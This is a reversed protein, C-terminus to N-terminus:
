DIKDEEIIEVEPVTEDSKDTISSNINNDTPSIDDILNSSDDTKSSSKGRKLNRSKAYVIEKNGDKLDSIEKTLLKIENELALKNATQIEINYQKKYLFKDVQNTLKNIKNNITLIQRDIHELNKNFLKENEISKETKDTALKKNRELLMKDKEEELANLDMNLQNIKLHTQEKVKLIENNINENDKAISKDIQELERKYQNLFQEKVKLKERNNLDKELTNRRDYSSKIKFRKTIKIKRLLFGLIAVIIALATILSTAYFWNFGGVFMDDNIEDDDQENDAIEEIQIVNNQSSVASSNLQYSSKDEFKEITFDDFFVTGCTLEDFYGLGVRLTISTDENPCVYFIYEVFGNNNKFESEDTKIQTFKEKEDDDYCLVVSAGYDGDTKETGLNGTKVWISIKYYAGSKLTFTPSTLYQYVDFPTNIVLVKNGNQNATNKNQTSLDTRNNRYSLSNVDVIGYETTINNIETYTWNFVESIENKIIGSYEFNENKFDLIKTNVNSSFNNKAYNYVTESINQLIVNDFYAFGSVNTTSLSLNCTKSKDTTKIYYTYITWNNESYIGKESIFIYNDDSIIEFSVGTNAIQPIDYSTNIAISFKYFSNESLSFTETTSASVTQDDRLSGLALANNYEGGYSDVAKPNRALSYKERFNAFKTPNTNIIGGVCFNDDTKSLTYGEVALPYEIITNLNCTLDFMYNPIIFPNISTNLNLSTSNSASKGGSYSNYNIRQLRVDDYFVYGKVLSDPTGLCLQLKITYDLQQNGTIYFNYQIWGNTASNTVTTLVNLSANLNENENCILKITPKNEEKSNSSAWVSLRYYSQAEITINTSELGIHSEEANYLFLANLNSGASNNNDPYYDLILKEYNPLPNISDNSFNKVKIQQVTSKNSPGMNSIYQWDSESSNFLQTEFSPNKVCNAIYPENLNIILSNQTNVSASEFYDESCNFIQINNFLAIGTCNLDNEDGGIWLSLSVKEDISGTYIFFSYTIWNNSTNINVVSSKIDDVSFDNLYISAIANSNGKNITKLCVSIVFQSSNELTFENSKYGMRGNYTTTNLMLNNYYYDGPNTRNDITGPNEYGDMKYNSFYTSYTNPETSIIGSKFNSINNLANGNSDSTIKTWGNPSVPSSLSSSTSFNANTLKSSKDTYTTSAFSSNITNFHNGIFTCSVFIFMIVILKITNKISSFTKTKTM